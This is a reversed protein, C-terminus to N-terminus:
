WYKCCREYLEIVARMDAHSEWWSKEGRLADRGANTGWIGALMARRAETSTCPDFNPGYMPSEACFADRETKTEFWEVFGNETKAYYHKM